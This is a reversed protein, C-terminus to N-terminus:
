KENKINIEFKEVYVCNEFEEKISYSKIELPRKYLPGNLVFSEFEGGEGIPSLQYLEKFKLLKTITQTDLRKGVFEKTLPYGFVGLLVIEFNLEQLEVLMEEEDIEWLPNFCWIDLERCIQQIRSAQYTSKIAGTVVGQIHFLEITEQIGRKLDQLEEEKNGLTEVIHQPISQTELQLTINDFGLSQFMYSFNNLSKMTIACVVEHEKSAKYMALHSDKGGSFLVALKM